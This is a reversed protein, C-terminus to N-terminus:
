QLIVDDFLTFTADGPYNDDHSTLTLTYSHGAVVSGTKQTWANTTCTKALLTATTGLTNDKLTVVAWDYTLTDPCTEKFWFSLVSKGTPVTFTQSITSDGNTPNTSGLRACYTGGHCGSSVVSDSAGSPTWGSLNGTEFGGNTIGGTSGTTLTVDDYLTYSPDGSYDDDHSLLTLTYSHGATISGTLNTWSNTTCVKALLTATTGVTNDKLTVTAWDYTVTDPCTMKYWLSIGTTGTPATFTQTATSDGNTPSTSGLRACYTGGHCGSNVVTESAGATTWGTFNGLEFGGNTIGGGGSGSVTVAVTTSHTNSGEVGTVTVTYTGAAVSTGVNVTLTASAGAAVSTPSISATPGAPSVSTSLSVTGTSGVVTTSITSTGSGGVGQTFSMSTPSASITFDPTTSATITLSVTTSHSGSAATGTVTLTYTGAAASTTTSISLTSSSGSTVSTPNLTATVGSPAGSVSLSVTQASGSTTATSITSSTSNGATVSVSAPSASISFDNVTGCSRTAPAICANGNPAANSFELQVTYTQGDCASYTTQQANCIDGIEGNNADYWALPPGVVTALGVEGDTITETMEHSAVSTYNGFTTSNGCGTACGSGPQMDPHVGYYLENIGGTHAITGHYACFGGSVCSQSGGQTITIGPPFYIAYYTVPNGQADLAPAPLHGANIQSEIETQIQSDAVTSGTVSPTITVISQFAGDAIHQNTKTGTPNVTNYESDLWSAYSSQGLIQEYFTAMSPTGTSAIHQDYSGPGWLVIVVQMASVVRGGYYTLHAGSPSTAPTITPGGLREPVKDVGHKLQFKYMRVHSSPAANAADDSQALATGALSLAVLAATACVTFLRLRRPVAGHAFKRNARHMIMSM